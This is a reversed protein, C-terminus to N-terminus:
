KELPIKCYLELSTASFQQGRSVEKKIRPSNKGGGVLVSVTIAGKTVDDNFYKFSWKNQKLPKAWVIPVCRLPKEILWLWFPLLL